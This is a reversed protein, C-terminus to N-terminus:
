HLCFKMLKRFERNKKYMTASLIKKKGELM